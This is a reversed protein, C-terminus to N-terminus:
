KAKNKQKRKETNIKTKTGRGKKEDLVVRRKREMRERKEGEISVVGM